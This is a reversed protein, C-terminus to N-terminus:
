LSAGPDTTRQHTANSRMKGKFDEAKSNRGTPKDSGSGDKPTHSVWAEITASNVCFHDNPM